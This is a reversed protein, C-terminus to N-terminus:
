QNGDKREKKERKEGWKNQEWERDRRNVVRTKDERRM